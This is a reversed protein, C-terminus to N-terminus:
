EKFSFKKYGYITQFKVDNYNFESNVLHTCPNLKSYYCLALKPNPAYFIIVNDKIIPINEFKKNEKADSYINPWPSNKVNLNEYIRLSHKITLGILFVFFVIKLKKKFKKLNIEIFSSLIVSLSISFFGILYGYGYRL